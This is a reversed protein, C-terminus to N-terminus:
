NQWRERRSLILIYLIRYSWWEFPFSFFNTECRRRALYYLADFIYKMRSRKRRKRMFPSVYVIWYYLSKKRLFNRRPYGILHSRSPNWPRRADFRIQSMEEITEPFQISVDNQKEYDYLETGPIPHYLYVEMEFDSYTEAIHPILSFTKDLSSAGENPFGIIFNVRASISAKSMRNLVPALDEIRHGKQIFDLTDQAGSEVGISIKGLGAQRFVNFTEQDIAKLESVSSKCEWAISLKEELLRRSFEEVRKPNALFNDDHFIVRNIKYESKLFRLDSVMTEAKLGRWPRSYKAMSCFKCSHPCGRSSMYNILGNLIGYGEMKLMDYPLRKPSLERLPSSNPNAVVKGDSEYTIGKLNEMTDKERIRRCLECFTIEGEGRVVFDIAPDVIVQDPHTTPYWGGWVIRINENVSKVFRSFELGHGIQPLQCSVGCVLLEDKLEIIKARYDELRGDVLTVKFGSELLPNSLHLL